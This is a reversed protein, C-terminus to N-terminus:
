RAVAYGLTRIYLVLPWRHEPPTVRELVPDHGEGTLMARLITGDSYAQVKSDRLDSPKPVYSQGVPGNGDGKEGHCFTCYYQYYVKGRAVNDETAPLPNVMKAAEAEAPAKESSPSGTSDVPVVGDPLRPVEVQYPRVNPQTIMRPGTVLVYGM